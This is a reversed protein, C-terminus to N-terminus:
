VTEEDDLADFFADPMHGIVFGVPRLDPEVIPVLRATPKGSRAIVVEEGAGVAVLLQSLRTSAEQVDVQIM